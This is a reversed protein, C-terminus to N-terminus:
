FLEESAKSTKKNNENAIFKDSIAEKLVYAGILKRGRGSFKSTWGTRPNKSVYDSVFGKDTKVEIHGYKGGSYVLITGIPIDDYNKIEQKLNKDTWINYFGHNELQGKATYAAAHPLRSKTLGSSLLGDKVYRFCAGIWESRKKRSVQFVTKGSRTKRKIIRKSTNEYLSDMLNQIQPQHQYSSKLNDLVGQANEPNVLVKRVEELSEFPDAPSNQCDCDKLATNRTNNRDESILEYGRLQKKSQRAETPLTAVLQLVLFFVLFFGTM